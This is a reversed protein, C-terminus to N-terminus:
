RADPIGQTLMALGVRDWYAQGVEDLEDYPIADLEVPACAGFAACAAKGPHQILTLNEIAAFATKAETGWNTAALCRQIVKVSRRLRRLKPLEPCGCHSPRTLTRDGEEDYLSRCLPCEWENPDKPPYIVEAM